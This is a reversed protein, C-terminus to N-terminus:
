LSGYIGAVCILLQLVGASSTSGADKSAVGNAGKGMLDKGNPSTRDHKGTYESSVDRRIPVPQKTRAMDVLSKTTVWLGLTRALREAFPARNPNSLCGVFSRFLWNAQCIPWLVPLSRFGQTHFSHAIDVQNTVIFADSSLFPRSASVTVEKAKVNITVHKDIVSYYAGLYKFSAPCRSSWCTEVSGRAQLQDGTKRM